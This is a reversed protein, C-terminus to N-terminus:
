SRYSRIRSTASTIKPTSIATFIEGFCEDDFLDSIGRALADRLLGLQAEAFAALDDAIRNLLRDKFTAAFSQFEAANGQLDSFFSDIRRSLDFMSDIFEQANAIAGFAKGLLSCGGFGDVGRSAIMTRMVNALNFDGVFTLGSLANTHALFQELATRLLGISDIIQQYYSEPVSSSGGGQSVASAYLSAATNNALFVDCRSTAEQNAEACPNVFASGDTIADYIASIEDKILQDNTEAVTIAEDAESVAQTNGAANFSSDTEEPPVDVVPLRKNDLLAKPNSLIDVAEKVIPNELVDASEVKRNILDVVEQFNKNSGLCNGCTCAGACSM